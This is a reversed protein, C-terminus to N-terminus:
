CGKFQPPRKEKFAKIGELRDETKIVQAYCAEEIQLGTNLDTEIGGNIAAKAMRLALPGQPVIEEALSIAKLYAADGDKNQDVVYNVLGIRFAETGDIARGTFILEKALSPGIVRPLRQTGGGGPIIALKTEVLGMKASNSAVRVDCALALELGGGLAAGDLAVITPVPLNYLKQVFGRLKSVFPGVESEAMKAREKLDAGASFVGPVLSRLVVVRIKPDAHLADFTEVMLQNLNTSFANKSSPRNLGIVVIGNRQGDEFRQVVLEDKLNQTAIGNFSNMRITTSNLLSKKLYAMAKTRRLMAM